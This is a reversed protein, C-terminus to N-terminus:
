AHDGCEICLGQETVINDCCYSLPENNGFPLASTDDDWDLVVDAIKEQWNTGLDQEPTHGTLTKYLYAAYGVYSDRLKELQEKQDTLLDQM